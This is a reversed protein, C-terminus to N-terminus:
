TSSVHLIPCFVLAINAKLVNSACLIPQCYESMFIHIARHKSSFEFRDSFYFEM